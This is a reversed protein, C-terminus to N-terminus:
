STIGLFKPILPTVFVEVVSAIALAIAIPILYKVYRIFLPKIAVDKKLLYKSILALSISAGLSASMVIAPLEVVGHPLILLLNYTISYPSHSIFAGLIYGNIYLVLIPIVLTPGLFFSILAVRLNNLFVMLVTIIPNISISELIPTLEKSLEKVVEDTFEQSLALSNIVGLIFSAVMLATSIKLYKM